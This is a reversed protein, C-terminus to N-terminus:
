PSMAALADIAVKAKDLQAEIGKIDGADCPDGTDDIAKQLALTSDSWKQPDSGKAPTDKDVMKAADLLAQRQECATRARSVHDLKGNIPEFVTLFGAVDARSSAVVSGSGTASGSGSASASASGSASGSGSGSGSASGSASGASASDSGSATAAAKENKKCATAGAVALAGAVLIALRTM